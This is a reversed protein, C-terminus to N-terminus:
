PDFVIQQDGIYIPMPKLERAVNKLVNELESVRDDIQKLRQQKKRIEDANTLRSFLNNTINSLDSQLNKRENELQMWERRVAAYLSFFIPVHVNVPEIQGREPDEALEKGISVPCIMTLFRSDRAFLQFFLVKIDEIIDTHPRHACLDYKTIAIVVPFPDQENPRWRRAVEGLFYNMRFIRAARAIKMAVEKSNLSNILYEGSICLIICSSRTVQTALEGGGENELAFLSQKCDIISIPAIFRSNYRLSFDWEDVFPISSHPPPFREVGNYNLLQQWSSKLRIHAIKDKSWLVFDDQGANLMSYMGTLFLSKGSAAGGLLTM